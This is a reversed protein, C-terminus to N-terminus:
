QRIQAHPELVMVPIRRPAARHAYDGYNPALEVVGRWLREREEGQAERARMGRCRGRITVEVDPNARLNFYWAPHTPMGGQSGILLIAAGDAFYALPTKRIAGTKAGRHTLLLVPLGLATNVRGRSACLLVRDVRPSLTLFFWTLAGRTARTTGLARIVAVRRRGHRWASTVAAPSSGRTKETDDV